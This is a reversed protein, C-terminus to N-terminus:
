NVPVSLACVDPSAQGAYDTIRELLIENENTVCNLHIFLKKQKGYTPSDFYIHCNMYMFCAYCVYVNACTRKVLGTQHKYKVKLQQM